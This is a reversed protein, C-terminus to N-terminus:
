AVDAKLALVADAYNKLTHRQDKGIRIIRLLICKKLFEEVQDETCQINADTIKEIFKEYTDLNDNEHLKGDQYLINLLADHLQKATLPPRKYPWEKKKEVVPEIPVVPEATPDEKPLTKIFEGEENTGYVVPPTTPEGTAVEVPEVFEQVEPEITEPEPLPEVEPEFEAKKNAKDLAINFVVLLIIALPDFVFIILLMLINVVSDMPLGTIRAMYKLTGTDGKSNETEMHVITSDIASMELRVGEVVLNLSDSEKNLKSIEIDTQAISTQVSKATRLQNKAYLSDMRNEQQIRLDSLSKARDQKRTISQGYFAIREDLTRKKGQELEIKANQTGMGAATGEYSSSLNGYVGISTLLMLVATMPILIFKLWKLETWLRYLVSVSVVKGLEIACMMTIIPWGAFITSMGTISFGASFVALTIATIGILLPFSYKKM